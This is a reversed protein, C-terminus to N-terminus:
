GAGTLVKYVLLFAAAGALYGFLAIWSMKKMYWIFDIRELGMAAVGAASGIIFISGGTGATYAIFQWLKSDIPFVDMPYMGMVAAVLPVNDIIASLFGLIVVVVDTNPIAIQLNEAMVALFGLAKGDVSVGAQVSDLAAVAVLIGLFFLISSLEIRSLAYRASYKTKREEYFDEEPHIYESVLWVFALSLMMGMYPPLGTVAKFIPVFILGGVGCFLMTKSSLLQEKKLKADLDKQELKLTGKFVPLLKALLLPILLCALSPVLLYEILGLTTVKEKIWLMTTTVDGIPTWAGGANAAIVIFSVFWLREMRDPVLRRLLSIFVITTTLNDLISSMFFALWSVLWLLKTKSTTQIRNTIVSFGLHLDILEVITMAGLLFFLIESIEGFHHPLAYKAGGAEHDGGVVPLGAIAIVAWCLVGAFLAPVTKDLKLPHEFIIALYGVIFIAVVVTLM